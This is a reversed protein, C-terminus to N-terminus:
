KKEYKNKITNLEILGVIIAMIIFLYNGTITTFFGGTTKFPFIEAIFVIYFPILINKIEINKNSRISKFSAVLTISFILISM